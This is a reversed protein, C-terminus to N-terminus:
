ALGSRSIAGGAQASRPAANRAATSFSAAATLYGVSSPRRYPAVAPRVTPLPAPPRADARATPKRADPSTRGYKTNVPLIAIRHKFFAWTRFGCAPSAVKGHVPCFVTWYSHSYFRSTVANQFLPVPPEERAVSFPVAVRRWGGSDFGSLSTKRSHGSKKPFTWM